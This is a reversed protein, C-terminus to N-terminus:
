WLKPLFSKMVRVYYSLDKKATAEPSPMPDSIHLLGRKKISADLLSIDYQNIYKELVKGRGFIGGEPYVFIAEKTDFVRKKSYRTSRWTALDEFSWASEHSRLMKVLYDKRWLGMQTTLRWHCAKTCEWLNPYESCVVWPISGGKKDSLAKKENIMCIYGISSDNDLISLIQRVKNDDVKSTLWFDELTFLIYEEDIHQLTKLLRKSWQRNDEKSNKLPSYIKYGDIELGKSESCLYIPWCFEPWHNKLCAFYPLWADCYNDCTVFLMAVNTKLRQNM